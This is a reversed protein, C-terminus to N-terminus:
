NTLVNKQKEVYSNQAAPLNKLRQKLMSKEIQDLGPTRLINKIRTKHSICAIHFSDKPFNNVRYKMNHPFFSDVFKCDTEDLAKLALFADDFSEIAKTLSNITDTDNKECLYFEQTIFAYEALIISHPNKSTHIEQFISLAEWIGDEYSIRGEREQGIIAFGKRGSHINIVTQYIRSALTIPDL